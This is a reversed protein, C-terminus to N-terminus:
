RTPKGSLISGTQTTNPRENAKDNATRAVVITPKYM